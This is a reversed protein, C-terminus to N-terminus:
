RLALVREVVSGDALTIRMSATAPVPQLESKGSGTPEIPVIATAPTVEFAAVDPCLLETWAEGGGSFGARAAQRRCLWRRGHIETLGYTVTVPEDAPALSAPRLAAHGALVIGNPGYRVGIAGSLDRRLTETLDARWPSAAEGRREMASRSRGLTGLVQLVALMLVATLAM